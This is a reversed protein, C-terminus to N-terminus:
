SLNKMNLKRLDYKHVYTSCHTQTMVRSVRVLRTDGSTEQLLSVSQDPNHTCTWYLPNTLLLLFFIVSGKLCVFFCFFLPVIIQLKNNLIIHRSGDGDRTMPHNFYIIHILIWWSTYNGSVIIVPPYSTHEIKNDIPKKINTGFNFLDLQITRVKIHMLLELGM